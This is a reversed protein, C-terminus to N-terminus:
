TTKLIIEFGAGGLPSDVLEISGGFEAMIDKAIGLGIGLGKPKASFFPNFIETRIADNIGPGNDYIAIAVQKAKKYIHMEITPGSVPEVAEMANQLLNVLVQELRVRGALVSPLEEDPAVVRFSIRAARIREGVLLEVGDVIDSVTLKAISQSGRKAYRRLETTIEGIRTALSAISSLNKAAKDYQGRDLMKNTNEAFTKIAAVPQNVEHAVSATIAGISGLRNAQALEERATRFRDNIRERQEAEYELRSNAESLEKTRRAVETKLFCTTKARQHALSMRWAMFFGFVLFIIGFSLVNAQIQTDKANIAAGIRKVHYVNWGLEPMTLSASQIREGNADIGSSMDDIQLQSLLLPEGDFQKTRVIAERQEQSIQELLTFNLSPDSAFLIIGNEDTVFTIGDSTKWLNSIAEFEVKIVMVGISKEGDRIQRTLFLGAKGTIEGKAFYNSYGFQMAEQFYPRFEFSRGVFTDPQSYNSAAITVGGEDIVYIYPAGTQKALMALKENLREISEPFAEEFSMYVTPNESLALPLLSFKELEKELIQVQNQLVDEIYDQLELLTNEHAANRYSFASVGFIIVAIVALTMASRVGVFNRIDKQKMSRTIDCM